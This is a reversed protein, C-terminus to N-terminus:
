KNKIKVLFKLSREYGWGMAELFWNIRGFVWGLIGRPAPRQRLLLASLSPTLTLALFTSIAISFAITLAFQKYIEGTSGPFFAVPVFVAMLVLSTAIVAGFLEQMSILAAQRASMGEEQILRSINEVVIIADDVGMGTSLTLGFMTLINISFGFAKVFAFTGVLSLPITIVPILTTRWDQLFIFIVLIVLAIAELLTKVVEALSEEVITTTDFAVQYKMGPPFSQSLQAIEKKVLNAVDLVNSGPAPFIGLGVGENGKFRLFSSYNQAGLEARGVDKLKILSGDGATKIVVNDFEEVETLRSVARLDIQYMQGDVAPQQGIQGAGVQLNQENLADIVDGTTLNRTALKNPDLWLRMAYRREGFIRAESVGKIRKLADVLYLDAYNSLFVNNLAKNDSFL